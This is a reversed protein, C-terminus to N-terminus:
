ILLVAKIAGYFILLAFLRHLWVASVRQFLSSSLFGGAIGGILYPLAERFMSGSEQRFLLYSVASLPLMVAVSTAFAKKEKMGVWGILMPVLLLGGGAGFLGNCAGALAGATICKVTHNELYM